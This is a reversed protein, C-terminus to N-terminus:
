YQHVLAHSDGERIRPRFQKRVGIKNQYVLTHLGGGGLVLYEIEKKNWALQEEVGIIGFPPLVILETQESHGGM